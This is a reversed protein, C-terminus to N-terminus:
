SKIELKGGTNGDYFNFDYVGTRINGLRTAIETAIMRAVNQWDTQQHVGGAPTARSGPTAVDLGRTQVANRSAVVQIEQLKSVDLASINTVLLGINNALLGMSNALKELGEQADAMKQFETVIAIINSIKGKVNKAKQELTGDAVGREFANIFETIGRIMTSSIESMTMTSIIKGENDYVPIKGDKGYKAYQTLVNSFETIADLVGPSERRLLGKGRGLLAENFRRMKSGISGGSKFKDANNAMQEVFQGFVTTISLVIESIPMSVGTGEVKGKEPDNDIYQTPVFISQEKGFKAFLKLTEAFKSVGSILGRDGSLSSAFKRLAMAQKNSLDQTSKIMTEIFLGFTEAITKAILTVHIKDGGMKPVMNGEADEEYSLETIEGLKAFARLGKAFRSLSTAITGFMRIARTIRRFQNLERISLKGDPSEDRKGPRDLNGMVGDIVAGMIGGVMIRINYAMDELGKTGGIENISEGVRRIAKTMRILAFSITILAIAGLLAPGSVLPFGIAWFLAVSSMLFLGFMGLGAGIGAFIQGLKGKPKGEKNTASTDGMGMLFKSALAVAVIGLSIFILAIGIGKAAVIGPAAMKGALGLLFMAGAMIGIIASVILVSVIPSTNFVLSAIKITTTFLLIGGAILLLALGMNKASKMGPGTIPKALSLLKMSLAIIGVIAVISLIGAILGGPIGLILPVLRMITAFALIGVAILMFAAGMDRAGDIAGRNRNRNGKLGGVGKQGPMISGLIGGGGSSDLGSIILMSLGLTLFSLTIFGLLGLPSMGLLTKAAFFAGVFGLVGGAAYLLALGMDKANEALGETKQSLMGDKPLKNYNDIAEILSNLKKINFKNLQEDLKKVSDAMKSIADEKKDGSLLGKILSAAGISTSQKGDKGGKKSSAGMKQNISGLIGLIDTLLEASTKM